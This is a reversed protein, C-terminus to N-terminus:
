TKKVKHSKKNIKKRKPILSQNIKEKLIKDSVQELDKVEEKSYNKVNEGKEIKKIIIKICSTKCVTYYKDKYLFYKVAENDLKEVCNMYYVFINKQCM